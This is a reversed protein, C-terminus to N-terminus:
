PMLAHSFPAFVEQWTVRQVFDCPTELRIALAQAALILRVRADGDGNVTSRDTANISRILEEIVSSM